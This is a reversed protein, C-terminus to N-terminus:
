KKNRRKPLILLASTKDLYEKYDPKTLLNRKDMMPVSIFIFLLDILITGIMYIYFYATSYTLYLIFIGSWVLMEGLYNPHRSLHWLGKDLTKGSNNPDKKFKYLTLDSIFCLVIGILILIYGILYISKFGEENYIFAIGPITGMYTLFTPMVMFGFLNIVEFVIGKYRQRYSNYRFDEEKLGKFHILWNTTLRLSYLFMLSLFIINKTNWLMLDTDSEMVMVLLAMIFPALGWYPDYFSTNRIFISFLYIVITSLLSFFALKLLISGDCLLYAFIGVVYAILYGFTILILSKKKDM